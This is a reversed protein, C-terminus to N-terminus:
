QEEKADGAIGCASRLADLYGHGYQMDPELYNGEGWENWSKIFILRHEESKGSVLSLARRTIKEFEEPTSKVYVADERNRPTRDWNPVLTPYVNERAEAGILMHRNIQSQRFVFPRRIGLKQSVFDHLSSRVIGRAMIQAFQHNDTAVADFGMELVTAIRNEAVAEDDKLNHAKSKIYSTPNATRVIGVFHFDGLGSAAALERWQAIFEKIGEFRFPDFIAFLPRGDVRMYRSDRFAELLTNFHLENDERGPYKQEAIMVSDKIRSTKNTWTSTQWSHNAWCLCFPFDPSHSALVENFPRELLQRGEGFWYHYYCFAEIGADAALRAQAERVEPMRLDYFGLDAPVRPQVHGRFLPKAKAVNTWETFGKGWWKDNEPIPHFQPLYFAVFRCKDNKM